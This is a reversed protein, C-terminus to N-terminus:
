ARAPLAATRDAGAPSARRGGRLLVVSTWPVWVFLFVPFGLWEIPSLTIMGVGALIVIAAALGLSTRGLWRPLSTSGLASLGTAGLFLIGPFMWSVGWLIQDIPGRMMTDVATLAAADSVALFIAQMLVSNWLLLHAAYLLGGGFVVMWLGSDRDQGRRLVAALGTSFWVFAVAALALMYAGAGQGASSAKVVTVMQEPNAPMPGVVGAATMANMFASASVVIGGVFLVVFVLGAAGSWREFRVGDV